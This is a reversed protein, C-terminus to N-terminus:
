NIRNNEKNRGTKRNLQNEEEFMDALWKQHVITKLTHTHTCDYLLFTRKPEFVEKQREPKLKLLWQHFRIQGFCIFFIISYIYIIRKIRTKLKRHNLPYVCLVTTIELIVVILFCGNNITALIGYVVCKWPSM